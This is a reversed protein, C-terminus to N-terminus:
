DTKVGVVRRCSVRDGASSCPWFLSPIEPIAFALLRLASFPVASRGVHLHVIDEM